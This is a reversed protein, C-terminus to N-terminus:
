VLQNLPDSMIDAVSGVSGTGIGEFILMTGWDLTLVVDTGDDSITSVADIDDVLGAIGSDTLGNFSLIDQDTEWDTIHDTGEDVGTKFVFTDVWTGGTLWDDGGGGTLTDMGLGGDLSDSNSSGTIMDSGFGGSLLNDQGGSVSIVDDGSRGNVILAADVGDTISASLTDDGSGGDVLLSWIDNATPDYDVVLVDFTINDDGTGGDIEMTVNHYTNGFTPSTIDLTILSQIVDDGGEGNISGNLTVQGNQVFMDSLINDQGAGADIGVDVRNVEYDSATVQSSIVDDGTGGSIEDMVWTPFNGASGDVISQITDDGSGGSIVNFAWADEYASVFATAKIWDNGKGGDITNTATTSDTAGGTEARSTITDDGWGGDIEVRTQTGAAGDAGKSLAPDNVIINDHGKGGDVCQLIYGDTSMLVTANSRIIDDGRGGIQDSTASGFYYGDIHFDAILTDNGANGYQTIQAYYSPDTDLVTHVILSSLVDNHKGGSLTTDNHTSSLTDNGDLGNVFEGDFTTSINDASSSGKNM